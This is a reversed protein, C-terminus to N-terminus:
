TQYGELITVMCRVQLGNGGLLVLVHQCSHDQERRYTRPVPQRRGNLHGVIMAELDLRAGEDEEHAAVEKEVEDKYDSYVHQNTCKYM